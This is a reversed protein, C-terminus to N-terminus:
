QSWYLIKFHHTGRKTKANGGGTGTRDIEDGMLMGALHAPYAEILDMENQLLGKKFGDILPLTNLYSVAGVRIKRDM